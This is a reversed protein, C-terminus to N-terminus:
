TELARFEPPLNRKVSVDGVEAAAGRLERDFQIALLMLPKRVVVSPAGLEYFAPVTRTM